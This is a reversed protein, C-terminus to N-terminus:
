NRKIAVIEFVSPCLIFGTGRQALDDLDRFLQDCDSQELLGLSVLKPAYIHWWIVPWQFMSEGPRAVRSHVDLHTLELGADALMQPLRGCIDTDGGRDEWSKITAAVAKDHSTRRPAMTMTRYNFYDHVVFRGGPKLLAAVGRVVAAPDKVFCLVWRAYALDFAGGEGFQEALRQVDGVVGRLQTLGRVTAQQNLHDIFGSSEDVGVVSGAATVLQALDFAAYGPGCGVDLVRQGAQICARRWVAHAADSWLRHQLALRELEDRGTGLVYERPQM